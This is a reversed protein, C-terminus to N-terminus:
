IRVKLGVLYVCIVHVLGIMTLNEELTSAHLYKGAIRIGFLHHFCIIRKKYGRM